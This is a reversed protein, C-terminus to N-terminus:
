ETFAPNQKPTSRRWVEGGAIVRRSAGAREGRNLPRSLRGAFKAVAAKRGLQLVKVDPDVVLQKPEFDCRITFAQSGGAAPTM